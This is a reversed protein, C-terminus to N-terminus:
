NPSRWIWLSGQGIAAFGPERRASHRLLRAAHGIPALHPSRNGGGASDHVHLLPTMSGGVVDDSSVTFGPVPPLYDYPNVAMRRELSM